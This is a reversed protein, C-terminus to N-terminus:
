SVIGAQPNILAKFLTLDQVAQIAKGAEGLGYEASVMLEWPFSKAHRGMFQVGRYFHSCTCCLRMVWASMM